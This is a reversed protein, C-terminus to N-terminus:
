ARGKVRPKISHYRRETGAEDTHRVGTGGPGVQEVYSALMSRGLKLVQAFIEAEVEHLPRPETNEALYRRMQQIDAEFTALHSTTQIM